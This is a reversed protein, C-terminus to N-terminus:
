TVAASHANERPCDSPCKLRKAFAGTGATGRGTKFVSPLKRADFASEQKFQTGVVRREHDDLVPWSQAGPLHDLAFEAPSRADVIADFRDWQDLAERVALIRVTM